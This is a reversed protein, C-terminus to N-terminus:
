GEGMAEWPLALVELPDLLELGPDAGLSPWALRVAPLDPAMWALTLHLHPPVRMKPGRAAALHAIVEGAAVRQGVALTPRPATHGYATLLRRGEPTKFEHVLFISQGLFDPAVKTVEGAWTAPIALTEDLYHVKGATDVFAYLDLGEHPAPRAKGEGWWQERAGFRMGGQFRWAQLEDLYPRNQDRLYEQFRSRPTASIM